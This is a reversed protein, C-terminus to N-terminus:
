DSLLFHVFLVFSVQRCLWVVVGGKVPPSCMARMIDGDAVCQGLIDLVLCAYAEARGVGGGARTDVEAAGATATGAHALVYSALSVLEPACCINQHFQVQTQAKQMVSAISSSRGAMILSSPRARPSGLSTGANRPTGSSSRTAQLKPSSPRSSQSEIPDPHITEAFM